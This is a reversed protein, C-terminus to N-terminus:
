GRASAVKQERVRSRVISLTFKGIARAKWADLLHPSESIAPQICVIMADRGGEAM